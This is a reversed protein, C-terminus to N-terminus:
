PRAAQRDTPGVGLFPGISTCLLSLQQPAWLLKEASVAQAHDVREVAVVALKALVEVEAGVRVVATAAAALPWGQWGLWLGGAQVLDAGALADM